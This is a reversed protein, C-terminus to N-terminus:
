KQLIGIEYNKLYEHAKESHPTNLGMPRTEFLTTADKGCGQYVADGGPHKKAANSADYVKDAIVFWCNEPTAHKSVEDLTYAPAADPNEFTVSKQEPVEANEQQNAPQIQDNTPNQPKKSACGAGVLVTLACITLLTSTRM